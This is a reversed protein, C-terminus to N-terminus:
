EVIDTETPKELGLYEKTRLCLSHTRLGCNFNITDGQEILSKDLLTRIGFISGFPPVAGPICKTLARVEEESALNIKKTNLVSKVKKWSVKKDAAMVCLMFNDKGEKVLMAKAGSALSVGRVKASEDSTKTPSHIWLGYKVKNEAIWKIIKEYTEPNEKDGEATIQKEEVSPIASDMASKLSFKLTKKSSDRFYKAFRFSTLLYM